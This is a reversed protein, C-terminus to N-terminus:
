FFHHRPVNFWQLLLAVCLSEDFLSLGQVHHLELPVAAHTTHTGGNVIGHGHVTDLGQYGEHLHAPLSIKHHAHPTHSFTLLM